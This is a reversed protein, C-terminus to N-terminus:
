NYAIADKELHRHGDKMSHTYVVILFSEESMVEKNLALQNIIDNVM